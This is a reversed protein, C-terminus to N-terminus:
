GLKLEVYGSQFGSVKMLDSIVRSSGLYEHKLIGESYNHGLLIVDIDNITAIHSRNVILNYYSSCSVSKKEVLEKPYIWDGQNKIPHGPTIILGGPLHCM